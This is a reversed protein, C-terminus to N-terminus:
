LGNVGWTMLLGTRKRKERITESSSSMSRAATEM